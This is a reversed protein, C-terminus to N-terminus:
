PVARTAPSISKKSLYTNTIVNLAFTYLSLYSGVVIYPM